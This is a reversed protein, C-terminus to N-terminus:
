FSALKCVSLDHRKDKLGMSKRKELNVYSLSKSSWHFPKWWWQDLTNLVTELM